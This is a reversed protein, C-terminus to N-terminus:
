PAIRPIQPTTAPNTLGVRTVFQDVITEKKTLKPKPKTKTANKVAFDFINKTSANFDQVWSTEGTGGETVIISSPTLQSLPLGVIANFENTIIKSDNAMIARILDISGQRRIGVVVPNPGMNNVDAVIYPGIDEHMLASYSGKLSDANSIPVNKIVSPRQDTSGSGGGQLQLLDIFGRDVNYGIDAKGSIGCPYTKTSSNQRMQLQIRSNLLDDLIPM